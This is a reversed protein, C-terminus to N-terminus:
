TFNPDSRQHCINSKSRQSLLHLNNKKVSEIGNSPPSPFLDRSRATLCYLGKNLNSLILNLMIILYLYLIFFLIFIIYIYSYILIIYIFFYMNFNIYYKLYSIVHFFYFYSIFAYIVLDIYFINSIVDM